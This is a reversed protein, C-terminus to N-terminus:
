WRLLRRGLQRGLVAAVAFALTYWVLAFVATDTPCHLCYVVGAIASACLGTVAGAAGMRTPAFSRFAWWLGAYIPISLLLVLWTCLQWGHGLLLPVWDQSPTRVLELIAAPLYILLPIPLLWLINSNSGPRALRAAIFLSFGATAIMYAAKSWFRSSGLVAVLDPRTGVVTMLLVVSVAAGAIAGVFLRIPITARPVPRLDSVLSKVLEDTPHQVAIM